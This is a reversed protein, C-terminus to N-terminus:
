SITTDIYNSNLHELYAMGVGQKIYFGQDFPRGCCEVVPMLASSSRWKYIATDEEGATQLVVNTTPPAGRGQEYVACTTLM